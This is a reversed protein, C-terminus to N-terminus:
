EQKIDARYFTTGHGGAIVFTVREDAVLRKFHEYLRTTPLVKYAGLRKDAVSFVQKPSFYHNPGESNETLEVLADYLLGIELERDVVVERSLNGM